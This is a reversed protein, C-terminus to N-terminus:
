VRESPERYPMGVFEFVERESTVAKKAGLTQSFGEGTSNWKWGKAQAASAIAINSELPGTRCVLLNFWNATTAEFLDVPLGTAVHRMLKNKPGFTEIGKKNKRRDLVGGHEWWAIVEDALNVDVNRWFEFASPRAEFKPIYLLELDGVTLKGRRLSGVVMVRECVADLAVMLERAVAMAVLADFQLKSKPEASM